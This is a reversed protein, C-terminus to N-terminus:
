ANMRAAPTSAPRRSPMLLAALGGLVIAIGGLIMTWVIPVFAVSKIANYDALHAQFVRVLNEFRGMSAPMAKMAAATAPLNQALFGQLQAASMDLQRGLAPLMKAQMENGMTGVAALSTQAGTLMRQTYLPKLHANMLDAASAKQPLSLVLPAIVLLAGLALSVAPVTRGPRFAILLGLCVLVIGVVLMLWPITAAPLSATPIADALAFRGQEAKLTGVVGQFSSVITPLQQMGAAVAPFTQQVEAGFATPTMHLAASLEPVATKTFEGDVAGLGNLDAQLSAIPVPKMIPRFGNSMRDFAPGVAFLGDVAVIVIFAMGVAAVVLGAVRRTWHGM